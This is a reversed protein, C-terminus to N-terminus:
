WKAVLGYKKRLIEKQQHSKLLREIQMAESRTEFKRYELLKWPRYPKTSRVRRKNHLVIRKEVNETSGIYLDGNKLSYLVYTFYMSQRTESNSIQRIVFDPTAM